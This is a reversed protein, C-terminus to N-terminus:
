WDLGSILAAYTEIGDWLNQLRLNEDAAHQNNDHNVIPLGILPVKLAQDFLYLPVSGGMMPLTVVPRGAAKSAAAIVAQSVPLTMDTRLGPYGPEWALRIVRPHDLRTRLDPTDRVVTWGKADLFAEVSRKIADVSQDPVLRFDLSITAESPIANVTAAGVAGASIGRMNLAPAMVAAFLKESGETRGIGLAQMLDDEVPPLAAIAAQDAASPVRAADAVGPISITGDEDRMQAVLRAAMAGPNPVWNGYHGDHLPRLPGYVTAELGLAGRVGFYLSPLRSQHVPGDGILWLDAKLLDSNAQLLGPLHPSGAEEEGEWFVRLNVSAKRGAAKLADLASLFAVISAKDDAVGRGFFRWEPDLAGAVAGRWDVDTSIGDKVSRMVPVFPDSAWRSVTVPQGDYHAYFVVTRKAGPVDLKGFVAKPTGPEASLLHTEFGRARLEGDLLAATDDLGKPDAAISPLRVLRDLRDVIEAEHGERWQHVTVAPAAMAGGACALMLPLLCAARVISM